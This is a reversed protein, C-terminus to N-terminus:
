DEGVRAVVVVTTAQPGEEGLEEVFRVGTGPKLQDFEDDVVANRHFYVSRGEPTRLFGYDQDTVLQDVIGVTEQAPHAKVERRQKETLERLQRRAAEFTRNIVTPLTEHLDGDGPERDVVLEHGPPVRMTVRVRYPSGSVQESQPREVAVRCSTLHDCVQDLKAVKERVLAETAEDKKLGRFSLELPVQM